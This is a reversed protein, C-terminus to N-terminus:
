TDLGSNLVIVNVILGCCNPQTNVRSMSPRTRCQRGAKVRRGGMQTISLFCESHRYLMEVSILTLSVAIWAAVGVIM